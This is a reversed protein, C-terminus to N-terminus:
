GNIAEIIRRKTTKAKRMVKAYDINNDASFKKISDRGLFISKVIAKESDDLHRLVFHLEGMNPKPSTCPEVLGDLQVFKANILEAEDETELQAKDNFIKKIKRVVQAPASVPFWYKEQELMMSSLVKLECLKLFTARFKELDENPKCTDVARVIAVRGVQRYDDIDVVCSANKTRAFRTAWKEVLPKMINLIQDYKKESILGCFVSNDIKQYQM